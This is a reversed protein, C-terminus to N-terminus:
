EDIQVEFSVVGIEGPVLSGTCTWALSGTYGVRPVSPVLLACTLEAPQQVIAPATSTLASFAPTRDSVAVDNIADPGPNEFILRYVIVDGPRGGNSIEFGEGTVLDCLNGTSNCVQKTLQLIEGSFVTVTDANSIEFPTSTGSFTGSAQIDFNLTVGAAAGAASTVRGILCVEDGASVSLAGSVVTDGAGIVGDCDADIFLTTTFTGDVSQVANVLSFTVDM